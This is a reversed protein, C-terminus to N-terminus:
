KSEWIDNRLYFKYVGNVTMGWAGAIDKVGIGNKRAEVLFGLLEQKTDDIRRRLECRKEWLRVGHDYSVFVISDGPDVDRFQRHRLERDPIRLGSDYVFSDFWDQNQALFKWLGWFATNAELTKELRDLEDKYEVIKELLEM